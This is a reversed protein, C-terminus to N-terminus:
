GSRKVQLENHVRVVGDVSLAVREAEILMTRYCNRM